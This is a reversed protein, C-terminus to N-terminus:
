EDCDSYPTDQEVVFVDVRAKIISYLEAATLDDFNKVKWITNTM